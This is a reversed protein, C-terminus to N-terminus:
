SDPNECHQDNLPFRRLGPLRAAGDPALLEDDRSKQERLAQAFRELRTSRAFHREYLEDVRAAVQPAVEPPPPTDSAAAASQLLRRQLERAVEPERWEPPMLGALFSFGRSDLASSWAFVASPDGAEFARLFLGWGQARYLAYLAPDAVMEEGGVGVANAFLLMSDLNGAQASAYNFHAIRALRRPDVRQCEERLRRNEGSIEVLMETARALQEESLDMRALRDIHYTDSSDSWARMSRCRTLEAAARCAAIADGRGAAQELQAIREDTPLADLASRAAPASAPRASTSSPAISVAATAPAAPGPSASATAPAAADRAFSDRDLRLSWGGVAALLVVAPAILRATSRRPM